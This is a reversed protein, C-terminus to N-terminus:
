LDSIFSRSSCVLLNCVKFYTLETRLSIFLKSFGFSRNLNTEQKILSFASKAPTFLTGALLGRETWKECFKFSPNNVDAHMKDAFWNRAQSNIYERSIDRQAHKQLEKNVDWHIFDDNSGALSSIANVGFNWLGVATGKWAQDPIGSFMWPNAYLGYLDTHILPDNM